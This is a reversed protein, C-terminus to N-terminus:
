SDGELGKLGYYLENEISTAGVITVPTGIAVMDFLADMHNNELAICGNTTSDEGGGHIEILGGIKANKAILGRKKAKLFDRKDEQNPYDLLLAKYYKSAGKGSKKIIKYRGEPTADDGSFLKDRYGFRGFGINFTQVIKGNKYLTLTREAKDVVIAAMKKRKSEEVTDRVFKRWKNIIDNQSYRRLIPTVLKEAENLLAAASEVKELASDYREMDISAKAESIAIDGRTLLKRTSAGVNIKLTLGNIIRAKAELKKIKDSITERKRGKDENIDILLRKGNALADGINKQISEYDRFISFKSEEQVVKDKLVRLNAKFRNYEEPAYRAADIKHLEFDINELLKIEPPPPSSNCASFFLIVFPLAIARGYSLLRM